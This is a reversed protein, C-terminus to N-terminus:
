KIQIAQLNERKGRFFNDIGVVFHNRLVFQETLYSGIFGAAGTILIRKGMDIDLAKM